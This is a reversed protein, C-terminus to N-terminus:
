EEITKLEYVDIFGGGIELCNEEKRILYQKDTTIEMTEYDECLIPNKIVCGDYTKYFAGMKQKMYGVIYDADKDILYDVDEKENWYGIQEYQRNKAM